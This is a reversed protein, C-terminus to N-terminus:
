TNDEKFLTTSGLAGNFALIIADVVDNDEIELEIKKKFEAQVEQKKGNGKLGLNKRATTAYLYQVNCGKLHALTYAIAGIRSILRFMAPNFRFFTDEVVVNHEPKIIEFFVKIIENYKFYTDKTNIHVVGYDITLEKKTTKLLCWGTRSATDIGLVEVNRKIPKGLRQEILEIKM